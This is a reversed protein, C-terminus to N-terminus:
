QCRGIRDHPFGILLSRQPVFSVCLKEGDTAPQTGRGLCLLKQCLISGASVTLRQWEGPCANRENEKERGKVTKQKGQPPPPLRPFGGKRGEEMQMQTWCSTSVLVTCYWQLFSVSFVTVPVALCSAQHRLSNVSPAHLLAGGCWSLFLLSLSCLVLWPIPQQKCCYQLYSVNAVLLEWFQSALSSVSM